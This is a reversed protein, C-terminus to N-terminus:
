VKNALSRLSSVWYQKEQPRSLTGCKDCFPHIIEDRWRYDAQVVGAEQSQKHWYKWWRIYYCSSVWGIEKLEEEAIDSLSEAFELGSFYSQNQIAREKLLAIDQLGLDHHLRQLSKFKSLPINEVCLWHICKLLVLTTTDQASFPGWIKRFNRYKCQQRIIM